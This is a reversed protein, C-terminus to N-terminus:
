DFYADYYSSPRVRDMPATAPTVEFAIGLATRKKTYEDYHGADSLAVLDFRTFATAKRDYEVIGGLRFADESDGAGGYRAAGEARFRIVKDTVETVVLEVAQERVTAPPRPGGNGSSRVLDILARRCFRDLLAAPFAVKVGRTPEEPVLARWEKETLWLHDRQAEKTMHTTPNRYIALKGAKDRDLARSFVKLVLGNAPPAPEVPGNPKGLDALKLRDKKPLERWKAVGQRASTSLFDGNPTVVAWSNSVM